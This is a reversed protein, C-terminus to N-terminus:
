GIRSLQKRVTKKAKKVKKKVNKMFDSAMKDKLKIVENEKKELKKVLRTVDKELSHVRKTLQGELKGIEKRIAKEIALDAEKGVDYPRPGCLGRGLNIMGGVRATITQHLDFQLSARAAFGTLVCLSRCERERRGAADIAGTV